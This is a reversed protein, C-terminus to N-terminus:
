EIELIHSAPEIELCTYTDITCRLKSDVSSITLLRKFISDLSLSISRISADSLSSIRPEAGLRRVM